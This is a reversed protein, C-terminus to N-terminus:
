AFKGCQCVANAAALELRRELEEINLDELTLPADEDSPETTTENM